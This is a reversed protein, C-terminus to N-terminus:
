GKDMTVTVKLVFFHLNGSLKDTMNSRKPVAQKYSLTALGGFRSKFADCKSARHLSVPETGLPLTKWKSNNRKLLILTLSQINVSTTLTMNRLLEIGAQPGRPVNTLDGASRM